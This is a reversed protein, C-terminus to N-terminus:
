WRMPIRSSWPPSIRYDWPPIRWRPAPSPAAVAAPQYGGVTALGGTALAIAAVLSKVKGPIRM